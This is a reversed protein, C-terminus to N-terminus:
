RAHEDKLEKLIEKFANIGIQACKIRNPQNPINYFAILEDLQEEDYAEGNIMKLYNEILSIAEDVTKGVLLSAIIDTSSSSIACGLGSFQADVIKNDKILLHATIDDICTASKNHHHLYSEDHNENVKHSPHEYHQMIIARLLSPDKISYDM